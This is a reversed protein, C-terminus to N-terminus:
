TTGAQPLSIIFTSGKGPTSAVEVRGGHTEVIQRVISLGLGTGTEKTTYFPKFIEELKEPPIGEGKDSVRITVAKKDMGAELTVVSRPPSAEVANQILNVCAQLLRAKDAEIEQGSKVSTRLTIHKGAVLPAVIGKCDRFLDSLEFRTIALKPPRGFRLFSEVIGNLRETESKLHTLMSRTKGKGDASQVRLLRQVVISITNLPNRIEHAVNGALAGLSALQENRRAVEEVRKKETIDRLLIIFAAWSGDDERVFSTGCSYFRETEGEVSKLEENFLEKGSQFSGVIQGLGPLPLDGLHRGDPNVSGVIVKAKANSMTIIGQADSVILADSMEELIKGTYTRIRLYNQNVTRLNQRLMVGVMLVGGVVVLVIFSAEIRRMMRNQLQVFTERSLGIRLVGLREGQVNFASIVEFIEEGNFHMVRFHPLSDSAATVLLSDADFSTLELDPRSGALISAEDQLAIYMIGPNSGIDQLLTGFGLERRLRILDEANMVLLIAGRRAPDRRFAVAFRNENGGPSSRYGIVKYETKGTLVDSIEGAVASVGVPPTRGGDLTPMSSRVLRGTKDLINIRFLGNQEAAQSLTKADAKGMQDLHAVFRGMVLLRDILQNEIEENSLVVNAASRNVADALTAAENRTLNELENRSEVLEWVASGILLIALLFIILAVYRPRVLEVFTWREDRSIPSQTQKM